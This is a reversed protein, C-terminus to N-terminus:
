TQGGMKKFVFFLILFWFLVYGFDNLVDVLHELAEAIIKAAEVDM